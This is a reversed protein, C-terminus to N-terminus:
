PSTCHQFTSFLHTVRSRIEKWEPLYSRGYSVQFILDSHVFAHTCGPSVTFGGRISCQIFDSIDGTAEINKFVDDKYRSGIPRFWVLDEFKEKEPITSVKKDARNNMYIRFADETSNRPRNILIRVKRGHGKTLFFEHSNQETRGELDPLLAAVLVTPRDGEADPKTIYHSGTLYNAPICLRHGGIRVERREADTRFSPPVPVFIPERGTEAHVYPALAMFGAIGFFLAVRKWRRRRKGQKTNANSNRATM